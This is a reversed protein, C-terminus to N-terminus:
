DPDGLLVFAAWYYPHDFPREGKEKARRPVTPLYKLSGRPVGESLVGLRLLAEERSLGRLWVGAERLAEARGLPAKLGARKGLVNEYFRTM